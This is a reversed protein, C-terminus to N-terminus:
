QTGCSHLNRYVCSKCSCWSQTLIVSLHKGMILDIKVKTRSIELGEAFAANPNLLGVPAASLTPVISESPDGAAFPATAFEPTRIRCLADAVTGPRTLVVVCVNAPLLIKLPTIPLLPPNLERGRLVAVLM